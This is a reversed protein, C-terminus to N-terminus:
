HRNKQELAWTAHLIKSRLLPSYGPNDALFENVANLAEVSRRGRLLTRAWSQPFFIDNTRQIEQMAELAPRIYKVAQRERLPHCLYSLRKLAWPEIRRNEAKLLSRFLKEQELTDPIVAASVFEFQVRRDPDKIRGHQTEIIEKHRGPMRVALEYALTMYDNENLLPHSMREWMNYLSDCVEQSTASTILLRTLRLRCSRIAHTNSLELLRKEMDPSKVDQLPRDIYNCVTSAILANREKELGAVLSGLWEAAEIEGHQFCEHLNMLQSQRNTEDSIGHWNQLMWALSNDDYSFYGYGKGDCNPMIYQTMKGVAIKTVTDTIDVKHESYSEGVAAISFRQRWLLGRGHPDKQKIALTDGSIEFTFHPMGNSNVWTDSFAAIDKDSKGDLIEILDHWSANGYAHERLYQRIGERFPEEGMLEVLKELMVPAKNYIINNYILGANRMNDLPQRIATGGNTRDESLSPTVINKLWNLSDNIGPFMPKTILMAFYNAFVEKMWVDDFWEMTVYDGFWMHATEHAILQARRLEEDPTSHKGLFLQSDNYLTAGTHEMGSFQFGPLIIFDYKAFPYPIGTYEEMWALSQAVQGFIVPLQKIRDPDTERYYASFTRGEKSYTERKFEGAVFSFQYTSLKETPNFTIRKREGHQATDKVTTNSVATWEEPIDLTLRFTAKMDPQDFCPFLTRARDPVLLSYLFEDNRNLSQDGAVFSVAISNRGGKSSAKPLIIHENVTKYATSGGNMTVEKINDVERFDLIIEQPTDIDFEIEISGEVPTEKKDPITFSINYEISDISGKRHQALQQSVGAEYLLAREQM